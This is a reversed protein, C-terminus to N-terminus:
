HELGWEFSATAPSHTHQPFSFQAPVFIQQWQLNCSCASTLSNLWSVPACIRLQYQALMHVIPTGNLNLLFDLCGIMMFDSLLRDGPSATLAFSAFCSASALHKRIYPYLSLTNQLEPSQFGTYLLCTGPVDNRKLLIKLSKSTHIGLYPKQAFSALEHNWFVHQFAGTSRRSKYPMAEGVTCQCAWSM